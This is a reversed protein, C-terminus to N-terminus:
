FRMRRPVLKNWINQARKHSITMGPSRRADQQLERIMIFADKDWDEYYVLYSEEDLDWWDDLFNNKIRRVTASNNIRRLDLEPQSNLVM